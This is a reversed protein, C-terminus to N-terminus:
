DRSPLLQMYSSAAAYLHKPKTVREWSKLSICSSFNEGREFSSSPLIRHLLDNWVKIGLYSTFLTHSFVPLLIILINTAIYRYAM